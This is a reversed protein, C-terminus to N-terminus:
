RSDTKCFMAMKFDTEITKTLDITTILVFFGISNRVIKKNLKQRKGKQIRNKHAHRM